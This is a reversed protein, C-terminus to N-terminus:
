SSRFCHFQPVFHNMVFLLVDFSVAHIHYHLMGRVHELNIRFDGAPTHCTGYISVMDDTFHNVANWQCGEILPTNGECLLFALLEQLSSFRSPMYYTVTQNEM